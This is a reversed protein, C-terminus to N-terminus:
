FYIILMDYKYGPKCMRPRAEGRWERASALRHLCTFIFILLLLYNNLNGLKLIIINAM